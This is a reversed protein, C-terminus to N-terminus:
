EQLMGATKQRCTKMDMAVKWCQSGTGPNLLLKRFDETKMPRESFSVTHISCSLGHQEAGDTELHSATYEDACFAMVSVSVDCYGGCASTM